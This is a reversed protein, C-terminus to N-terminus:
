SGPTSRLAFILFVTAAAIFTLLHSLSCRSADDSLNQFEADDFSKRLYVDIDNVGDDDGLEAEWMPAHKRM